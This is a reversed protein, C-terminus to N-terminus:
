GERSENRVHAIIQAALTRNKMELYDALERQSMPNGDAISKRYAEVGKEWKPHATPDGKVRRPPLDAAVTPLPRPTRKAAPLAKRPVRTLEPVQEHMAAIPAGQLATPLMPLADQSVDKGRSTLWQRLEYADAVRLAARAYLVADDDSMKKLVDVERVFAIADSTRAINERRAAAWAASTERFAIGPLWRVGFRPRASFATGETIRAWRKVKALVMHLLTPGAISMAPFFWRGAGHGGSYNAYASALAFAWTGAEFSSATEGKMACLVVMGICSVAALDLALFVIWAFYVPLGLGAPSGAWEILHQASLTVPAVIVAALSVGVVAGLVRSGRHTDESSPTADKPAAQDQGTGSDQGPHLPVLRRDPQEIPEVSM